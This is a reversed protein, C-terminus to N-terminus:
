FQSALHYLKNPCLYRWCASTKYEHVDPVDIWKGYRSTVNLSKWCAPQQKNKLYGSGSMEEAKGKEEGLDWPCSVLVHRLGASEALLLYVGWLISKFHLQQAEFSIEKRWSLWVEIVALIVSKLQFSHINMQTVHSPTCSTIDQTCFSVITWLSRQIHFSVRASIANSFLLLHNPYFREFVAM